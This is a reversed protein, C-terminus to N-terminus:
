RCVKKRKQPFPEENRFHKKDLHNVELDRQASGTRTEEGEKKPLNLRLLFLLLFHSKINSKCAANSKREKRALNSAPSFSQLHFYQSPFLPKEREKTLLKHTAYYQPPLFSRAKVVGGHGNSAGQLGHFKAKPFSKFCNPAESILYGGGDIETSYVM